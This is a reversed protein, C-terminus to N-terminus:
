LFAGGALDPIDHLVQSPTGLGASLIESRPSIAEYISVCSLLLMIIQELQEIKAKVRGGLV